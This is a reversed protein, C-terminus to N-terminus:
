PGGVNGLPERRSEPLIPLGKKTPEIKLGEFFDHEHTQADILKIVITRYITIINDLKPSGILIM